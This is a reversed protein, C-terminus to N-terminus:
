CHCVLPGTAKNVGVDTAQASLVVAVLLTYANSYDLEGRPNPRQRSFRAFLEEVDEKPMKSWKRRRVPKKPTASSKRAKTPKGKSSSPETESVITGKTSM